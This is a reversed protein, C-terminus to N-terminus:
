HRKGLDHRQYAIEPNVHSEQDEDYLRLLYDLDDDLMFVNPYKDYIWKVKASYGIVTDPHTIIEIDNYKEYEEKQSEPVCVACNAVSRHTRVNNARKHSLIICKVIEEM